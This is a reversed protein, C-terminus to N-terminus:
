TLWAWAEAEQSPEFHRIKTKTLHNMTSSLLDFLKKDTVLAMREIKDLYKMGFKFDDDIAELDFSEMDVMKFLLRVTPHQSVATEMDAEMRGYDAERLTGKVAYGLVNSSSKPLKEIM